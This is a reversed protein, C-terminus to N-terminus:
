RGIDETIPTSGDLQLLMNTKLLNKARTVEFETVSTCLRMRFTVCLWVRFYNDSHEAFEGHHCLLLWSLSITSFHNANGMPADDHHFKECCVFPVIVDPM